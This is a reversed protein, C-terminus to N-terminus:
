YIKTFKKVFEILEKKNLKLKLYNLKESNLYNHKFYLDINYRKKSKYENPGFRFLKITTFEELSKTIYHNIWANKYIPNKTFPLNSKKVEGLNNCCKFEKPGITHGNIFKVEKMSGRIISKIEIEKFKEFYKNSKKIFRKKVSYDKNNVKILDNDGYIQWPIHIVEFKDFINQDLFDKIKSQNEVIFYEDIDLFFLWDYKKNYREYCDNYCKIQIAKEEIDYKDIFGEKQKNQIIDLDITKEISKENNDYLVIKDFGLQEYHEVWESLYNNEM